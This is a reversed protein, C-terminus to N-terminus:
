AVYETFEDADFPGILALTSLGDGLLEKALARLDAETVADVRQIVEDVTLIEGRTLESKGLWSMRSSTDEMGLVLSGKFQGKARAVEEDTLGDAALRGVEDMVVKLVEHIRRPAAGAYVAYSGTEAYQNAYSGISYVLGRKERVEQFLRSSMGGGFAINLVGLAFRRPDSRSIAPGGLVVHAQDTPRTRVCLGGGSRPRAREPRPGIVAGDGLQGFAQALLEVVEDHRCNGAAAVVLNGPTYHRRWYRALVDHPMAQISEVTGLVPRGLPHGGFLVEAFLDHVLDEPVDNAAGIEELIVTREAEVDPKALKSARVMDVLVDVALPLDRDLTRAYYCTYEKFTFANLEGGVADMVEAIDQASRRETGKFLLHELYHSAGAQRPTEDRSGVGAWIGLAVSRVSPMRETLIRLGGPLDSREFAPAAAM